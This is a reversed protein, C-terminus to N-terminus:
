LSSWLVEEAFQKPSLPSRQHAIMNFSEVLDLTKGGEKKQKECKGLSPLRLTVAQLFQKRVVIFELKSFIGSL